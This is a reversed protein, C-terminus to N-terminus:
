HSLIANIMHKDCGTFRMVMAFGMCSCVAKILGANTMNKAFADLAQLPAGGIFAMLIGAGILVARVEHGKALLYIVAAVIIAGTFMMLELM